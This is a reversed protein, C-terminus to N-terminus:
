PLKPGEMVDGERYHIAKTVKGTPNKVFTIRADMDKWFFNIESTPFIEHKDEGGRQAFLRGGERTVTLVAEGCAYRGVVAECAGPSVGPNAKADTFLPGSPMKVASEEVGNVEVSSFETVVYQVAKGGAQQMITRMPFLFGGFQRYDSFSTRQAAPGFETEETGIIGALLFTAIDYYQMQERGSRTVLKLAYCRKKEYSAEGLVEASQYHALDAYGAFCEADERQKEMMKGEILKPAAGPAAAWAADGDFGTGYRGFDQGDYLKLDIAVLWRNPRMACYQCHSTTFEDNCLDIMGKACFSHINLAAAAGGRAELSKRLLEEASIAPGATVKPATLGEGVLRCSFSWDATLKQIKLLLQNKGKVFTLPVRHQDIECIREIWHEHVVKGNLWVKVADGSGIGLVGQTAQPMEIEAWVYATAYEVAESGDQLDIMCHPSDVGKWVLEQGGIKQKLGAHPQIKGEGGSAALYDEAFARREAAEDRGRFPIPKLVLWQRMFQGPKLGSYAPADAALVPSTSAFPVAVLVLATAACRAIGISVRSRTRM